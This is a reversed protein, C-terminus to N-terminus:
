ANRQEDLLGHVWLGCDRIDALRFGQSVLTGTIATLTSKKEVRGCPARPWETLLEAYRWFYWRM